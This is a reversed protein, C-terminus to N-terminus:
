GPGRERRLTAEAVLQDYLKVAHENIAARDQGEVYRVLSAYNHPATLEAWIANEEDSVPRYEEAVLADFARVGPQSMRRWYADSLAGILNRIRMLEEDM